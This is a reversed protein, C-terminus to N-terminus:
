RRAGIAPSTPLLRLGLAGRPKGVFLRLSVASSRRVSQCRRLRRISLLARLLDSSLATAILMSAATTASWWPITRRRCAATRTSSPDHHLRTEVVPTLPGTATSAVLVPSGQRHVFTDPQRFRTQSQLPGPTSSTTSPGSSSTTVDARPGLGHATRTADQWPGLAAPGDVDTM